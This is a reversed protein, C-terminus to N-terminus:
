AKRKKIREAWEPLLILVGIIVTLLLFGTPTQLFNQLHGVKPIMMIVKGKVKEISMERDPANNADGQTTVWVDGDEDTRINVIRHTVCYSTDSEYIVIDNVAYDKEEHIIILDYLSITPEMSGSIVVASGFGFVTPCSDGFVARKIYCTVNFLIILAFVAMLIWSIVRLIKKAVM